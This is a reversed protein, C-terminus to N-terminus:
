VPRQDVRGDSEGDPPGGTVAATLWQHNANIM